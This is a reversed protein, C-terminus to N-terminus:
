KSSTYSSSGEGHQLLSLDRFNVHGFRHHWLWEDRDVPTALCQQKVVNLEVKFTRTGSLTAKVLLKNKVDFVRMTNEMVMRYGKELLQGISLLNSKMGPIYLVGSIYIHNGDRRKIMVKGVGEVEMTRDDAFRVKSKISDDFSVSWERRWTMHTSCDTDLFWSDGNDEEDKTTVMLLIEEKEEEQAM